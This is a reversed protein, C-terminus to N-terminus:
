SKLSDLQKKVDAAESYNPNIKLVLELQQRALAPEQAKLYAMGLHYHITPNDPAHQKAQLNLAEQLMSISSGYVGKQYYIWGLTDAANPSDPLGRRASEAFSMAVDINGGSQLMVNALNNAATPDGPKLALTKQYAEQAKTWDRKSGYLGGLLTYFEPVRPHDKVAQQYTAIAQDVEGKAAQVQGLQIVAGSNNKDLEVSRNFAAEAGNLDKKDRFLVSGLLFYFSSNAPSKTIQANAVALAKDGQNQALYTNMLGRLADTSNPDRDLADQYSKGAESYQKQVFKLNGREVYPLHSQPAVEIAKRIDEEAAAFQQRNIHSVARLAYGDPSAPQLRILQTAASELAGMDGQRMALLALSRQAEVLDPRIRVANLWEDKADEMNGSKQFALGLQYHAAANNPESKILTQLAVTAGSADGAAIQVQASYLLADTDKPSAKLVEDNLKRAEDFRNKQILLQTYTNKVQIDKSHEQYLAAYEATAEDLDGTTRYFDGLMRYDASNDPFDHKVQKLYDEAEAKKGEVLFLRVLAARPEPNKPDVAIAQRFEQEAQGYSGRAQHFTGMMLWAGVAKPNLEVAKRLNAEAEDPEGKKLLLLALQVHLDADSPALTIAKQMEAIAASVDGGAALLYASTLHAKPDDPRYQLLWDVQTQALQLDHHAILLEAMESRASYNEPQLELTRNLEQYARGQEQVKLYTQALQHHAEAFGPDIKIANTFEIAAERYKGKEFYRQGTDLYKQKRVNPDRSCGTFTMAILTLILIFRFGVPTRM